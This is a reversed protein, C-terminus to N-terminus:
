VSKSAEIARFVCEIGDMLTKSSHSDFSLSHSRSDGRQLLPSAVLVFRCQLSMGCVVEFESITM